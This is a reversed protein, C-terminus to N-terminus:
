NIPLGNMGIKDLDRRFFLYVRVAFHRRDLCLAFDTHTCNHLGGFARQANLARM